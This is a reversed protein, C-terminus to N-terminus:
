FCNVALNDFIEAVDTDTSMACVGVRHTRIFSWEEMWPAGGSRPVLIVASEPKRQHWRLADRYIHASSMADLVNKRTTRYKADFVCWRQQNGERFTAVIDPERAGSISHFGSKSNADGAPFEPQLLLEVRCDDGRFGVLALKASSKHGMAMSWCYDPRNAQLAEAMRVFCWREYIEWTPCIWLQVSDPAGEVGHRLIRWALGYTRSYTPDASVANLGAASFERRTVDKIPSVRQAQRLQRVLRDLFERRRPWRAALDSRTASSVERRIELELTEKLQVVRHAIAHTMMAICRNAAADLTEETVPVDLLPLAETSPLASERGKLTALLSPIRTAGLATQRDTRRVYRLPLLAREARLERIPYRAIAGLSRVFKAGYSRLRAYELWPNTIRAQHGTQFRPPETGLVLRPDFHWIQDLMSQFIDSSLKETHPAVDLAFSAAVQGQGILLEAHVRGAYFGPTWKWHGNDDELPQDDILFQAGVVPM